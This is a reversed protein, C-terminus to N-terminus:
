DGAANWALGLPRLEDNVRELDWVVVRGDHLGLALRRGDHSWNMSIVETAEPRLAFMRKQQLMNWIVVKTPAIKGAFWQGGKTNLAIHSAIFPEAKDTAFRRVSDPLRWVEAQNSEGIFALRQSDPFFALSHWEQLLRPGASEVDPRKIMDWMQLRYAAAEAESKVEGGVKKVWALVQGNPSIACDFCRKGPWHRVFEFRLGSVGGSDGTERQMRWLVVGNMDASAFHEQEGSPSFAIRCVNWFSPAKNGPTPERVWQVPVLQWNRTDWFRIAEQKSGWQAAAFLHGDPSFAANQVMGKFGNLPRMLAGNVPDWLKVTKDKSTSALVTGQPNFVVCPVADIHGDLTIREPTARLRWLRISARDFSALVGANGSFQVGCASSTYSRPHSLTAAVQNTNIRRLVVGGRFGFTAVQLSEPSFTVGKIPGSYDWARERLAPVDLTTLGHDSVLAIWDSNPSFILANQSTEYDLEVRKIERRTVVDLLAVGLKRENKEGHEFTFALWKHNPSMAAKYSGSSGPVDFGADVKGGAIDWLEIRSAQRVLVMAGDPTLEFKSKKPDAV